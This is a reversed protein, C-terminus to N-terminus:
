FPLNNVKLTKVVNQLNGIGEVQITVVDLEQLTFDDPPVMGTGTMLYVGQPFDCARFLWHALEPLSRKMQDLQISKNFVDRGDREILMSIITSRSIPDEPIFLCPGLAACREYTKAQPLYLPNLGEISRSSMDNGITYAQIAGSANMFLTLEPEPVNWSSDSRICIDTFPDAIRQPLSKFFLEPRDAEYVKQYFDGGGAEKSEEMRADRSRKYTVGAAWLEQSGIPALLGYGKIVEMDPTAFKDAQHFCESLHSHLSHQNVLGDWDELVWCAEQGDVLLVGKITKYLKM